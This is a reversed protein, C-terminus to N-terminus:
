TVGHDMAQYPHCVSENQGVYDYYCAQNMLLLFPDEDKIEVVTIASVLPLLPGNEYDDGKLYGNCQIKSGTDHLIKWAPGGFTCQDAATDVIL